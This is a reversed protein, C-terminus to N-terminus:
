IWLLAQAGIHLQELAHITRWVDNNFEGLVDDRVYRSSTFFTWLIKKEMTFLMKLQPVEQATCEGFDDLPILLIQCEHFFCPASGM